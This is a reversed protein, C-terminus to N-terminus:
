FFLGVLLVVFLFAFAVAFAMLWAFQNIRARM